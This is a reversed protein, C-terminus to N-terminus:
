AAVSTSRTLSATSAFRRFIRRHSTKGRKGTQATEQYQCSLVSQSQKRPVVPFVPLEDEYAYFQQMLIHFPPYGMPSPTRTISSPACSLPLSNYPSRQIWNQLLMEHYQIVVEWTYTWKANRQILDEMDAKSVRSPKKRRVRAATATLTRELGTCVPALVVALAEPNMMNVDAHRQIHSIVFLLYHFLQNHLPPLENLLLSLARASQERSYRSPDTANLFRDHFATPVVSDPLQRLYKKVLSTISHIDYLKLNLCKGLIAPRDFARQLENVESAAGSLRFIGEVHLGREIIETFCRHVVEPVQLQTSNITIGCQAAFELPAGFVGNDSDEFISSPSRLTSSCDSLRELKGKEHQKGKLFFLSLPNLHKKLPDYLLM